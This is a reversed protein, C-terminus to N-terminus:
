NMMKGFIMKIMNVVWLIIHNFKSFFFSNFYLVKSPGEAKHEHRCDHCEVNINSQVAHIIWSYSVPVPIESLMDISTLMPLSNVNGKILSEINFKSAVLLSFLNWQLAVLNTWKLTCLQRERFRVRTVFGNTMRRYYICWQVLVLERTFCFVTIMAIYLFFTILAAVKREKSKLWRNYNLDRKEMIERPGKLSILAVSFHHLWGNM